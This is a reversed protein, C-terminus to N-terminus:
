PPADSAAPTSRLRELPADSAGPASRLRWPHICPQMISRIRNSHGVGDRIIHYICADLAREFVANGPGMVSQITIVSM